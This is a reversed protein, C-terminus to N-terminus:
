EWYKTTLYMCRNFVTKINFGSCIQCTPYKGNAGKRYLYLTSADRIKELSRIAESILMGDKEDNGYVMKTVDNEMRSLDSSYFREAKITSNSNEVLENSMACNIYDYRDRCLDCVEKYYKYDKSNECRHVMVSRIFKELVEELLSTVIELREPSGPPFERLWGAWSRSELWSNRFEQMTMARPACTPPPCSSAGCSKSVESHSHGPCPTATPWAQPVCPLKPRSKCSTSAKDKVVFCAGRDIPCVGHVPCMWWDRHTVDRQEDNLVYSTAHQIMERLNSEFHKGNSSFVAYVIAGTIVAIVLYFILILVAAIVTSLWSFPWSEGDSDQRCDVEGKM